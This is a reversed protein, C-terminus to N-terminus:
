ARNHYAATPTSSAKGPRDACALVALRLGESLNGGGIQRAAEAIEADLTVNIRQKRDDAALSPRGRKIMTM